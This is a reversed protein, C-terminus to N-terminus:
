MNRKLIILIISSLMVTFHLILIILQSILLIKSKFPVNKFLIYSFICGLIIGLLNILILNFAIIKLISDYSFNSLFPYQIIINVCVFVLVMILWDVFNVKSKIKEEFLDEDLLM